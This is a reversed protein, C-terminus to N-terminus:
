VREEKRASAEPGFFERLAEYYGQPDVLCALGHGAGAVTVLKKRATCVGYMDRSMQCPVFDDDEGHFFIVPVKCQEMAEIPSFSELGFGGYLRAGLRVFPYVLKVPLGMKGIVIQIIEKPSSYPCDAIVGIVNPPLEKGAAMLVTAAGMSIGTLIIKVDKGYHEVMFDVWALCDRHEKIGFTISRGQSGAACRQDIVLASRGLKFCRQVGGPMDREADGRYGHIMLEIPAGPAYEYFRGRLRLGDFSTIELEECPMARMAMAWQKMDEWFPEYISGVPLNIKQSREPKRPPAYFARRYCELALILVVLVLGAVVGLAIWLYKM